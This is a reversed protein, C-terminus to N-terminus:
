HRCSQDMLINVSSLLSGGSHDEVIAAYPVTVDSESADPGVAVDSESIPDLSHRLSIKDRNWKRIQSSVDQFYANYCM